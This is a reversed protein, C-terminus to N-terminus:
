AMLREALLSNKSRIKDKEEIFFLFIFLKASVQSSACSVDCVDRCHHLARRCSPYVGFFVKICQRLAWSTILSMWSASVKMAEAKFTRMQIIGLIVLIQVLRREVWARALPKAIVGVDQLMDNSWKRLWQGSDTVRKLAM